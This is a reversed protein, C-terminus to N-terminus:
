KQLTMLHTRLNVKKNKIGLKVRLNDRHYHITSMALNLLNAIEKTTKGERVLNAIQIESPTLEYYKSSINTAFPSIVHNLNSQIIDVYTKQSPALQGLKMKSLLPLILDKISVTMKEELEKQAEDKKNLLVRLAINAEELNRSNEELKENSKILEKTREQVRKELDDRAIRLKEESKKLANQAKLEETTDRAVGRVAIPGDKGQILSNTYEVVRTHGNKTVVNLLGKDYGNVKIRKLYEDFELKFQEPVLDRVNKTKFDSKSYGMNNRFHSNTDIFNGNLDHRYIYENINEFIDRFKQESEKFKKESKKLANQMIFRETIDHAVGRVAIPGDKGQILSNTYEVVRTHGNKAVVNLLGKDYGNVKIRKLYEDFELKFQEPILDRVNKTKLESKSYGMNNRFHSNTDIWNGNLDHRYINENINEFIDRFKRESEKLKKESKKLANQTKLQESIDRCIVNVYKQGEQSQVISSKYEISIGNGDKTVIGITGNDYGNTKVRKLYDDFELKDREPILDKLNKNAIQTKTYGISEKFFRNAFIFNGGLDHLFFLQNINNFIDRFISSNIM